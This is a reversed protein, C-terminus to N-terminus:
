LKAWRPYNKAAGSAEAKRDRSAGVYCPLWSRSVRPTTEGAQSPEQSM